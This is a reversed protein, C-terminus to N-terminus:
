HFRVTEAVEVCADVAGADAAAFSCIVVAARKDEVYPVIVSGVRADDTKMWVVCRAGGTAERLETRAVERGLNMALNGGAVECSEPDVGRLGEEDGPSDVVAVSRRNDFPGDPKEHGTIQVRGDRTGSAIYGDPLRVDLTPGFVRDPQSFSFTRAVEDILPLAEAVDGLAMLGATRRANSFFANVGDGRPSKVVFRCAPERASDLLAVDAPEGGQTAGQRVAWGFCGDKDFVVGMGPGARLVLVLSPAREPNKPEDARLLVITLRPDASLAAYVIEDPEAVRLQPPVEIRMGSREVVERPAPTLGSPEDVAAAAAAAPDAAAEEGTTACASPLALLVVLPCVDAVRLM